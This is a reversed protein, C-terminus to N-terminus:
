QKRGIGQPDIGHRALQSLLTALMIVSGTSILSLALDIRGFLALVLSLLCFLDHKFLLKLKEGLGDKKGLKWRFAQLDGTGYVTTLLSYQIGRAILYSIIGLLGLWRFPAAPMALTAGLMFSLESLDDSVTDLWQGLRSCQSRLRALEGDVGDLMSQIQLLLAGFLGAGYGGKSIVLGSSIGLIMTLVSVHNPRVPTDAIRRTIALSVPRNLFRSIIGDAPKRLSNLSAKEM